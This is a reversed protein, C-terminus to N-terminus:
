TKNNQCPNTAHPLPIRGQVQGTQAVHTRLRRVDEAKEGRPRSYKAPRIEAPKRATSFRAARRSRGRVIEGMPAATDHSVLPTRVRLHQHEVGAVEAAAM